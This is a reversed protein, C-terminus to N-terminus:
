ENLNVIFDAYGTPVSLDSLREGDYHHSWFIVGDDLAIMEPDGAQLRADFEIYAEETMFSGINHWHWKGDGELWKIPVNEIQIGQM